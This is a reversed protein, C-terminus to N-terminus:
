VPFATDLHTCWRIQPTHGQQRVSVAQQIGDHWHWLAWWSPQWAQDVRGRGLWRREIGLNIM